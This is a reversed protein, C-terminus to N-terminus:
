VDVCKSRRAHKAAECLWTTTSGFVICIPVALITPIANENRYLSCFGCTVTVTAAIGAIVPLALVMEILFLATGTALLTLGVNSPSHGWLIYSSVVAAVTGIVGPVLKGPFILEGYVGFVGFILLVFAQNTTLWFTM